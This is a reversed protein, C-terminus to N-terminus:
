AATYAARLLLLVSLGEAGLAALRFSGQKGREGNLRSTQLQSHGVTLPPREAPVGGRWRLQLPRPILVVFTISERSTRIAATRLHEAGLSRFSPALGEPM